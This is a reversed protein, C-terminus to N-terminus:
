QTVEVTVDVTQIPNIVTMGILTGVYNRKKRDAEDTEALTPTSLTYEPLIWRNSVAKTMGAEFAKRVIGIGPEDFKAGAKPNTIVKNVEARVLAVTANVTRQQGGFLVDTATSYDTMARDSTIIFSGGDDSLSVANFGLQHFTGTVPDVDDGYQARTYPLDRDFSLGRPAPQDKLTGNVDSKAQLAAYAVTADDATTGSAQKVVLVQFSSSRIAAALAEVEDAAIATVAPDAPSVIGSDTAAYVMYGNAEAFAVLRKWLESYQANYRVNGGLTLVEVPKLLVQDFLPTYNARTYNVVIGGASTGATSRSTKGVRTIPNFWVEGNGSDDLEPAVITNPDRATYKIRTVAVGDITLSTIEHIHTETSPLTFTNVVTANGFTRDGVAVNTGAAWAGMFFRDINKRAYFASTALDSGTYQDTIVADESRYSRVINAGLPASAHREALIAIGGTGPNGIRGGSFSVAATTKQTAM